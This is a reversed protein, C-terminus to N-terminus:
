GRVDERETDYCRSFTLASVMWHVRHNDSLMKPFLRNHLSLKNTVINYPSSCSIEPLQDCLVSLTLTTTEWVKQDFKSYPRTNCCVQM